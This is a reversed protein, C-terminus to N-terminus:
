LMSKIEQVLQILTEARHFYTHESFVRRYANEAIRRAEGFNNLYYKIKELCDELDKFVVIENGLSFDTAAHVRKESLLFGGCAPIDYCREPLGWSKERLGDAACGVNLNIRSRQILNVQEEFSMSRSDRFHYTIKQQGLIEALKQLFQVRQRHEPHGLHDLNGLFSVDFSYFSSERMETLSHGKLNYKSTWAANPLYIIKMKKSELGHIDHSAFIDLLPLRQLIDMKWASAGVNPWDVCWTIRVVKKHRLWLSLPLFKRENKLIQKTEFIVVDIKHEIIEKGKWLNWFVKHGLTEFAEILREPPHKYNLLINM